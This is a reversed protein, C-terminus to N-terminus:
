RNKDSWVCVCVCVRKIARQRPSGLHAPVLFTFGIQIKYSCSIVPRTLGTIEFDVQGTKTLTEPNTSSHNYIILRFNTKNWTEWLVKGNCGFKTPITCPNKAKLAKVSNTPRCSPCGTQLYVWHHPAPMTKQRSRPASKCIAWSIGSDSM